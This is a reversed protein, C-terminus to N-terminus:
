NKEYHTDSAIWNDNEDRVYKVETVDYGEIHEVAFPNSMDEETDMYDLLEARLEDNLSEIFEERDEESLYNMWDAIASMPVADEDNNMMKDVEEYASEKWFEPDIAKLSEEVYCEHWYDTREQWFKSSNKWFDRNEGVAKLEKDAFVLLGVLVAIVSVFIINMM